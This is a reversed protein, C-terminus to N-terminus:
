IPITNLAQADASTSSPVKTEVAVSTQSKNDAYANVVTSAIKEREMESQQTKLMALNSSASQSKNLAQTPTNEAAISERSAREKLIAEEEESSAGGLASPVAMYIDNFMDKFFNPITETFFSTINDVINAITDSFKAGLLVLIGILATIAIGLLVYPNTLIALKDLAFQILNVAYHGKDLLFRKLDLGYQLARQKFQKLELKNLKATIGLRKNAFKGLAMFPKGFSALQSGAEGIASTFGLFGEAIPGPLVSAVKDVGGRIKTGTKEIFGPKKEKADKRKDGLVESQKNEKKQLNVLETLKNAIEQESGEKKEKILTQIEKEKTIIQNQTKLNAEQKKQLDKESIFQVKKNKIEVALGKERLLMLKKERAEADRKKAKEMNETFKIARFSTKDYIALMRAGFNMSFKESVKEMREPVGSMMDKELNDGIRKLEEPILTLAPVAGILPDFIRKFSQILPQLEEEPLEVHAM